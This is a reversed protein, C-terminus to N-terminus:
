MGIFLIKKKMHDSISVNNHVLVKVKNLSAFCFFRLQSFLEMWLCLPVIKNAFAFSSSFDWVRLVHHKIIVNQEQKNLKVRIEARYGNLLESLSFSCCFCIWCVETDSKTCWDHMKRCLSTVAMIGKRMEMYFSQQIQLTRYTSSLESCSFLWFTAVFLRFHLEGWINAYPVSKVILWASKM